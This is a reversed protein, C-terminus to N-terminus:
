PEWCGDRGLSGNNGDFDNGSVHGCAVPLPAGAPYVSCQPDVGVSGGSNSGGNSTPSSSCSGLDQAAPNETGSEYDSVGFYGQSAQLQTLGAPAGLPNNDNNGDVVVYAGPVNAVGAVNTVGTNPGGLPNTTNPVYVVGNGFPNAGVEVLGGTVGTANPGLQTCVGAKVPAGTNEGDGSVPTASSYVGTTACGSAFVTHGGAVALGAVAIVGSSLLGLSKNRM